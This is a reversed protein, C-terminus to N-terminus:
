VEELAMHRKDKWALPMAGGQCLFSLAAGLSPFM